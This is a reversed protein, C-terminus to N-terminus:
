KDKDKDLFEVFYKAFQRFIDPAKQIYEYVVAEDIKDYDRNNM